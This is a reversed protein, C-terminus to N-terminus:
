PKKLVIVMYTCKFSIRHTGKQISQDRTMPHGLIGLTQSSEVPGRSGYLHEQVKWRFKSILKPAWDWAAAASPCSNCNELVRSPWAPDMLAVTPDSISEGSATSYCRLAQFGEPARSLGQQPSFCFFHYLATKVVIRCLNAVISFM